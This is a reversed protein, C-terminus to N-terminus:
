RAARPPRAGPVAAFVRQPDCGLAALWGASADLFGTPGSLYADFAGPAEGHLAQALGQAGLARDAVSYAFDDFADAWSRCYNHLYPARAGDELRVLRVPLDLERNIVHEVIGKIPGFGTGTCVFLLPRRAEEDLTMGGLPGEVALKENRALACLAREAPGATPDLHLELNVADCPCSALAHETQLGGRGSLCVHQGALFRLAGGRMVKLRLATAGGLDVADHVRARLSQVPIDGAGAAEAAEVVLDTRPACACLLVAGAARDAERIPYESFGRPEVEGELVRGLCDGCTGNACGYRPSLGARLAAELVTEGGEVTFRRGSPRFEVRHSM